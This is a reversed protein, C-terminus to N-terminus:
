NRLQPMRAKVHKVPDNFAPSGKIKSLSNPKKLLSNTSGNLDLLVIRKEEINNITHMVSSCLEIINMKLRSEKILMNFKDLTCNTIDILVNNLMVMELRLMLRAKINGPCMSNRAHMSIRLKGVRNVLVARAGVYKIGYQSCIIVFNLINVYAISAKLHM